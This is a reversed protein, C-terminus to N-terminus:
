PIINRYCAMDFVLELQKVFSLFIHIRFCEEAYQQLICVWRAWELFYKRTRHISNDLIQLKRPDIDFLIDVFLHNYIIM